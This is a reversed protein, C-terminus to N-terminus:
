FDIARPPAPHASPLGVPLSHGRMVEEDIAYEGTENGEEDVAKVQNGEEDLKYPLKTEMHYITGTEPDKRRGCVRKILVEDPVDLM